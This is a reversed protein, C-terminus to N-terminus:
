IRKVWCEIQWDVDGAKDRNDYNVRSKRLKSRAVEALGMRLHEPLDDIDFSLRIPKTPRARTNRKAPAAAKAKNSNNNGWIADWGDRYEETRVNSFYGYHVEKVGGVSERASKGGKSAGDGSKTKPKIEAGDTKSKKSEGGDTKSSSTKADSM